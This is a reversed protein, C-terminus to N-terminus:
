KACAVKWLIEGVSGPSVPALEGRSNSISEIVDGTGMQGSYITFYLIREREDKCDLEIQATASLYRYRGETRTTKYDFLRWMKVTDGSRRITSPDVYIDFGGSAPSSSVQVWEAWASTATLLLVALLIRKM